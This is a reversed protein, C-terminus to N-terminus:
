AVTEEHPPSKPAPTAPWAVNRASEWAGKLNPDDPFRLVLMGELQRVMRLGESSRVKLERRAGTHAARGANGELIARDYADLQNTLTDLLGERMGHETLLEKNAAAVTAIGHAGGRFDQERSNKSPIRFKGALDPHDEAAAKGIRALHLLSGTRLEDKLVAKTIASAHFAAHGAAEVEVLYLIRDVKDNFLVLVADPKEAGFPRTRFFDRVRVVTDVTKGV